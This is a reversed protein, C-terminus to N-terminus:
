DVINTTLFQVEENQLKNQIMVDDVTWYSVKLNSQIYLSHRTPHYCAINLNVSHIDLQQIAIIEKENLEDKLYMVDIENKFYRIVELHFSIIKIFTLDFKKLILLLANMDDVTLKDKIEILLYKRYRSKLDLLQHLTLIRQGDSYLYPQIEYLNLESVRHNLQNLRLFDKDHYVIFAQDKTIRVDCECGDFSSEFAYKFAEFTNEIYRKSAGRHAIYKMM